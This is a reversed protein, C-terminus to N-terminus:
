ARRQGVALRRAHERRQEFVDAVRTDVYVVLHADPEQVQHGTSILLRNADIRVLEGAATKPNLV